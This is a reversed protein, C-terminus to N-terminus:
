HIISAYNTTLAIRACHKKIPNYDSDRHRWWISFMKRTVSGKHPSNVPWRHIGRVFALVRLNSTEKIHTKFLRNLLCDRPPHNSVGDREYHRWELPQLWIYGNACNISDTESQTINLSSSRKHRKTLKNLELDYRMVRPNLTEPLPHWSQEQWSQLVSM